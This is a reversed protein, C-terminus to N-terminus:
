QLLDSFTRDSLAHGYFDARLTMVLTLGPADKVATLLLELFHQRESEPCLTYLEEFQDVIIVLRTRPNQQIHRDIVRYLAQIDHKFAIELDIERLRLLSSLNERQAEVNSMAAALATIPNNGPRFSVIEWNCNSDQRLSPILGAFVVSSKGSGSAGVVAVLRQKKVAAVLDRTFQERGFFLHADQERFAFLGRYPCPAIGGLTLWTPPEVAPNQCIVPLWSAGPFDNELGQLQRRAKQVASYLPLHEIAFATLFNNFFVQAVLNPVPERMVITSPLQLKSLAFALGMGDCSNFIALKLGNDIAAKLGEELQEITISNNTQNSNIHLRGTSGESRSHGAFFIIDWGLNDWLHTNLEQRNPNKLFIVQSNLQNNLQHNNCENNLEYNLKKLCQVEAELDIGQSDGLITLIRISKRKKAQLTAKRQYEPQAIAIEARGYDCFFGCRHWPLRRMLDDSTELIVRIDESKDLASRLQRSLSALEPSNLWANMATELQQCLDDFSFQSVNTVGAIAIELEDDDPVNRIVKRSCLNEYIIRWHQYLDLLHPASPLSGIFQEPLPHGSVWLQASVRPFGQKLDGHGLNIVVSKSM